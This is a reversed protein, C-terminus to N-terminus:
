VRRVPTNTRVLKPCDNLRLKAVRRLASQSENNDLPAQRHSAGNTTPRGLLCAQVGAALAEVFLRGLLAHRLSAEQSAVRIKEFCRVTPPNPPFPQHPRRTRPSHEPDPKSEPNRPAAAGAARVIHLPRTKRDLPFLAVGDLAKSSATGGAKAADSRIGTKDALGENRHTAIAFTMLTSGPQAASPLIPARRTLGKVFQAVTAILLVQALVPQDALVAAAFGHVGKAFGAVIREVALAIPTFTAHAHRKKRFGAPCALHAQAEATDGAGPAIARDAFPETHPAKSHSASLEHTSPTHRIEAVQWYRRTTM